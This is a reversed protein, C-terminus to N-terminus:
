NRGSVLSPQVPFCFALLVLDVLMYKSEMGRVTDKFVDCLGILFHASPRILYKELSSVFLDLLGM